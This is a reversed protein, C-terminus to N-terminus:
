RPPARDCIPKKHSEKGAGEERRWVLLMNGRLTTERGTFNRFRTPRESSPGGLQEERMGKQLTRTM